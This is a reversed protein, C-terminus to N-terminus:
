RTKRGVLEHRERVAGPRSVKGLAADLVFGDGKNM